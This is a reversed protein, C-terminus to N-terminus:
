RLLNGIAYLPYVSIKDYKSFNELSARVGYESQKEAM